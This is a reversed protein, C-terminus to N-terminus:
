RYFQRFLFLCISQFFNAIWGILIYYFPSRIYLSFHMLLYRQADQNPRCSYSSSTVPTTSDVASYSSLLWLFVFCWRNIKTRWSPISTLVSFIFLNLQLLCTSYFEQYDCYSYYILTSKLDFSCYCLFCHWKQRHKIM